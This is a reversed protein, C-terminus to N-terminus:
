NTFNFILTFVGKENPIIAKKGIITTYIPTSENIAKLIIENLTKTYGLTDKKAKFPSGIFTLDFIISIENIIENPLFEAKYHMISCESHNDKLDPIQVIIPNLSFSDEIINVRVNDIIGDSLVNIKDEDIISDNVIGTYVMSMNFRYEEM